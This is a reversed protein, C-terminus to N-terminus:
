IFIKGIFYGIVGLLIENKGSLNTNPNNPNSGDEENKEKSDYDYMDSGLMYKYSPPHRIPDEELIEKFEISAQQNKNFQDYELLNSWNQGSKIFQSFEEYDMDIRFNLDGFLIWIDSEKFLYSNHDNSDVIDNNFENTNEKSEMNM